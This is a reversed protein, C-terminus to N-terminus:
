AVPEEVEQARQRHRYGSGYGYGYGYGYGEEADAATLVFGLKRARMTSLLRHMETLNNRRLLELRAIIVVADVMASVTMPDGVHLLPPSDILLLDARERLQGVVNAVAQSGLLEGPNPPIHGATLVGLSGGAGNGAPGPSVVDSVEVGNQDHVDRQIPVRSLATDIPVGRVVDTIGPGGDTGFLQQLRPKRLDLDILIVRKGARAFAVALNAATTSKGEEEVASTIQITRVEQDLMVFELNTRLMRFSEAYGADPEELM